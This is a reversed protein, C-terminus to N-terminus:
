GSDLVAPHLRSGFSEACIFFKKREVGRPKAITSTLINTGSPIVLQSEMSKKVSAMTDFM